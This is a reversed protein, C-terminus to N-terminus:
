TGPLLRVSWYIITNADLLLIARPELRETATALNEPAKM